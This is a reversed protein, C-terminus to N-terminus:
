FPPESSYVPERWGFFRRAIWRPVTVSREPHDPDWCTCPVYETGAYEGNEDGYDYAWGGEGRCEPCRPRPTDALVLLPRHDARYHVRLHPM